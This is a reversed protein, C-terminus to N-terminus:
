PPSCTSGARDPFPRQTAQIETFPWARSPDVSGARLPRCANMRRRSGPSTMSGTSKPVSPGFPWDVRDAVTRLEPTEETDSSEIVAAGPRNVIWPPPVQMPPDDSGGPAVHVTLTRKTAGFLVLWVVPDIVM